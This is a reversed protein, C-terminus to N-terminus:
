KKIVRNISIEGEVQVEFFYIGSQLGSMDLEVRNSFPSEVRLVTAGLVDRVIIADIQDE